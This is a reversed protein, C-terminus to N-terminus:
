EFSISGFQKAFQYMEVFASGYIFKQTSVNQIDEMEPELTTGLLGPTTIGTNILGSFLIRNDKLRAKLKYVGGKPLPKFKTSIYGAEIDETEIEFGSDIFATKIAAMNETAKKDTEVFLIKAKKPIAKFEDKPIQSFAAINAFIIISLLIPKM